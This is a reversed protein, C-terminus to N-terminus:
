GKKKETDDTSNVNATEDINIIIKEPKTKEIEEQYQLQEHLKAEAEDLKKQLESNNDKMQEIVINSQKPTQAYKKVLSPDNKM